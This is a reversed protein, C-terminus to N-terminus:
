QTSNVYGRNPSSSFQRAVFRAIIYLDNSLCRTLLEGLSMPLRDHLVNTDCEGTVNTEIVM